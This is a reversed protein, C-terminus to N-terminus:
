QIRLMKMINKEKKCDFIPLFYNNNLLNKKEVFRQITPAKKHIAKVLIYVILFHEEYFTKELFM